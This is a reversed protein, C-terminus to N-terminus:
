FITTRSEEYVPLLSPLATKCTLWTGGFGAIKAGPGARRKTTTLPTGDIPLITMIPEPLISFCAVVAAAVSGEKLMGEPEPEPLPEPLLEAILWDCHLVDAHKTAKSNLPRMENNHDLHKKLIRVVRAVSMRKRVRMLSKSKTRSM